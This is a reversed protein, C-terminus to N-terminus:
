KATHTLYFKKKGRSFVVNANGGATAPRYTGPGPSATKYNGFRETKPFSFTPMTIYSFESLRGM